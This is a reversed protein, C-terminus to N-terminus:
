RRTALLRTGAAGGDTLAAKERLAPAIVERSLRDTFAEAGDAFMHHSDYFADDPLWGRCDVVRPAGARDTLANLFAM